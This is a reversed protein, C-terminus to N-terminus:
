RNLRYQIGLLPMFYSLNGRMSREYDDDIVRLYRTGLGGFLRDAIGFRLGAELSLAGKTVREGTWLWTHSFLGGAVQGYLGLRDSVPVAVNLGTLAAVGIASCQNSYQYDREM